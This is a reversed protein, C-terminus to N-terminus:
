IYRVKCFDVAAVSQNPNDGPAVAAGQVVVRAHIGAHGSDQWPDRGCGGRAVCAIWRDRGASQLM